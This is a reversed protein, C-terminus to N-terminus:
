LIKNQKAKLKLSLVLGTRSPRNPVGRPCPHINELVTSCEALVYAGVLLTPISWDRRCNM